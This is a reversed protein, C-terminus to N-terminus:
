EAPQIVIVGYLILDWLTPTRRLQPASGSTTVAAAESSL